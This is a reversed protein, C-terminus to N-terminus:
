FKASPLISVVSKSDDNTDGDNFVPTEGIVRFLDTFDRIQPRPSQHEVSTVFYRNSSFCLVALEDASFISATVLYPNLLAHKTDMVFLDQINSLVFSHSM